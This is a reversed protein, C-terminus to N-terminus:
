LLGCAFGKILYDVVQSFNKLINNNECIEFCHGGGAHFSFNKVSSEM